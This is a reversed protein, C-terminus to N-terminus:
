NSFGQVELGFGNSASAVGDTSVGGSVDGDMGDGTAAKLQCPKLWNAQRTALLTVVSKSSVVRRWVRKLWKSFVVGPTNGCNKESKKQFEHFPKSANFQLRQFDIYTKRYLFYMNM